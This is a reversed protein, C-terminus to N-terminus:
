TILSGFFPPQRPVGRRAARGHVLHCSVGARFQVGAFTPAVEVAFPRGKRSRSRGQSVRCTRLSCPSSRGEVPLPPAGECVPRPTAYMPSSRNVAGHRWCFTAYDNREGGEERERRGRAEQRGTRGAKQAPGTSSEHDQRCPLRREDVARGAHLPRCPSPRTGAETTRVVLVPPFTNLDERAHAPHADGRTPAPGASQRPPPAAVHAGGEVRLLLWSDSTVDMLTAPRTVPPQRRRVVLFTKTSAWARAHATAPAPKRAVGLNLPQQGPNSVFIPPNARGVHRFNPPSRGRCRRSTRRRRQSPMPRRAVESRRSRTEAASCAPPARQSAVVLPPRPTRVADATVTAIEKTGRGRRGGGRGGM